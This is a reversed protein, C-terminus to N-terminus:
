MFYIKWLDIYSVNNDGQTWTLKTSLVNGTSLLHMGTINNKKKTKNKELTRSCSIVILIYFLCIFSFIPLVRSSIHLPKIFNTNDERRHIQSIKLTCFFFYLAEAIVVAVGLLVGLLFQIKSYPPIKASTM